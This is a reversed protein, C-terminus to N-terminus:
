QVSKKIIVTVRGQKGFRMSSGNDRIEFGTALLKGTPGTSSVQGEGWAYNEKVKINAHETVVVNGNAHTLTVNGDLTLLQNKESFHGRQSTMTMWSQDQFFMEASVNELLVREKSQQVAKDATVTYQRLNGDVGQYRPSFMTPFSAGGAMNEGSSTLSIRTGEQSQLLPWIILSALLVLAFVGLFWKSLLVFRARRALMIFLSANDDESRAGPIFMGLSAGRKHDSSFPM